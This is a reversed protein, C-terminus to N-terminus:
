AGQAYLSVLSQSCLHDLRRISASLWPDRATRANKANARGLRKGGYINRSHRGKNARKALVFRAEVPNSRSYAGNGLRRGKLLAQQYLSRARLWARQAGLRVRNRGRKRVIWSWGYEAILQFWPSHFGADTMVIVQCGVSLMQRLRQVFGRHVAPHGLRKQPHVEEYLTVSRGKVVVSARLLHWRQHETLDSWDVVVLWHTVGDLWRQALAQYLEPRYRHLEANGLLRDVAKIRHKYACSRSLHLAIASLSARVGSLLAAVTGTLARAVWM